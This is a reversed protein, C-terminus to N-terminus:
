QAAASRGTSDPGATPSVLPADLLHLTRADADLEAAIGIPFAQNPGGHGIDAGSIMPVGLGALREALIAAVEAPDGCDTFSGTIIGAVGDLYGARLLHTLMRDVRFDEETVDELLLIGGRAPRSTPTGISAALLCLNGGLTVGRTRGPVVAAADPFRLTRVRDPTMIMRLLSDVGAAGDPEDGIGMTAGHVSAWGLRVAVAELVATVDSYGTLVKPALGAFRPWDLAALTRQAGSGGRAFLIGAITPDTLAATLDTARLADDGALYPRVTGTATASPYVVPELGAARLATLGADLRGPPVPSSSTLVAVRDGPRLAPPRRLSSPSATV